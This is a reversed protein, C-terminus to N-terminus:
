WGRCPVIGMTTAWNIQDIDAPPEDERQDPDYFRNNFEEEEEEGFCHWCNPNDIKYLPYGPGLVDEYQCICEFEAGIV